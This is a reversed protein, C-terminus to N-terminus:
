EMTKEVHESIIRGHGRNAADRLRFVDDVEPTSVEVTRLDVVAVVKHVYGPFVHFICGAGVSKVEMSNIIEDLEKESYDGALYRDMDIPGRSLYILGKGKIVLNTEKKVQHVHVSSEYPAKTYIEKLVYPFNDGSAAWKEWGWPKKVFKADTKPLNYM